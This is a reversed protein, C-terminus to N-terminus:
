EIIWYSDEGGIYSDYGIIFQTYNGFNSYDIGVIVIRQVPDYYAKHEPAPRAHVKILGKFYNDYFERIEMESKNSRFKMCSLGFEEILVTGKPVRMKPVFGDPYKFKTSYETINAAYISYACLGLLVVASLTILIITNRRM